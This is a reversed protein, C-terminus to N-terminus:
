AVPLTVPTAIARSVRYRKMKTLNCFFSVIRLGFLFFNGAAVVNSSQQSKAVWIQERM